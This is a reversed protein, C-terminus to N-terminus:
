KNGKDKKSNLMSLAKGYVPAVMYQLSKIGFYKLFQEENTDTLLLLDKLEIIQTETIYNQQQPATGNGDDDVSADSAALGLAASLTIIRLYTDASKIQQISNKSGETDPPSEQTVSKTYGGIHSINCTMRVNGPKEPKEINWSCSLGVRSMKTTVAEMYSALSSYSSKFKPNVKDKKIHIPESKLECMATHFAMESKKEEQEKHYVMLQKITELDYKNAVAMELMSQRIEPVPQFNGPVIPKNDPMIEIDTGTLSEKEIDLGPINNM